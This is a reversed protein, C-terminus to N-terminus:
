ARVRELADDASALSVVVGDDYVWGYALEDGGLYVCLDNMKLGGICKGTPLGGNRGLLKFLRSPTRGTL